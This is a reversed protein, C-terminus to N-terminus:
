SASTESPLEPPSSSRTRLLGPAEELGLQGDELDRVLQELENLSQEFSPQEATTDNM